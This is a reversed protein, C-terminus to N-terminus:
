KLATSNVRYRALLWRRDREVLTFNEMGDGREFNTQYTITFSSGKLPGGSNQQEIASHLTRSKVNGLKERLTKLMATSRELDSDQKWLDSAENYIKEYREAATDDSLTAIATQVEPPVERRETNAGCACGLPLLAILLLYKPSHKQFLLKRRGTM